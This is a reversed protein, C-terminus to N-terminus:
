INIIEPDNPMPLIVKGRFHYKEKIILLIEDKFNWSLLLITNPKKGFASEPSLIPIDTGATYKGQKLPNGDAICILHSHNIGCYNLLTSSRASAGYGIINAGKETEEAIIKKLKEKHKLSAQAFKLWCEKLGLQCDKEEQLKKQFEASKEQKVKSCYLALSGGNMPTAILDFAWLGHSELLFCLSQISFYFLHEHYISDYQLGDIINKSYHVEVIAIGDDKICHVMGSVVDHVNDVHPIVNRAFVCDALGHQHAISEAVRQSFFDPLTPIGNGNAIRAINEAPDVGLVKHGKEKFPKLFTGDNSAIEVIFLPRDELRRLAEKCFHYNFTQALSSTGTVWVYNRFLYEPKVTENLQVTKCNECHSISLPVLPLSDNLNDRLSNAPPQEGLSLVMKIEAKKCIRCHTIRDFISNNMINITLRDVLM